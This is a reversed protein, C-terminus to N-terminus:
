LIKMEYSECYGLVAKDSVDARCQFEWFFIFNDYNFSHIDMTRRIVELHSSINKKLPNYANAIWKKKRLNFHIPSCIDYLM